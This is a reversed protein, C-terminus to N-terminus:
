FYLIESKKRLGVAWTSLLEEAESDTLRMLTINSPVAVLQIVVTIRHTKFAELLPNGVNM